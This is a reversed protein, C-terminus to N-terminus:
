KVSEIASYLKVQADFLDNWPKSGEPLKNMMRNTRWITRLLYLKM